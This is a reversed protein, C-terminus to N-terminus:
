NYFCAMTKYPVFGLGQAVGISPKNEIDTAYVGVLGKGILPESVLSTLCKAIGRNRYEPETEIYSISFSKRTLFGVGSTAVMRGEGNLYGYVQATELRKSFLPGASPLYRKVNQPTLLVAKERHMFSPRFTRNDARYYCVTYTRDLWGMFQSVHPRVELSSQLHIRVDGQNRLIGLFESVASPDEAEMYASISRGGLYFSPSHLLLFQRMSSPDDVYVSVNEWLYDEEILSIEEVHAVPDRYLNPLIRRKDILECVM